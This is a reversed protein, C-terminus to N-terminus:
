RSKSAVWLASPIITLAGLLTWMSPVEAFLFYGATIAFLLEAYRFPALASADALSFGKLLFFLIGNAGCGLLFFLAWDYAMPAVWVPAVFFASLCATAVSGWFLMSVMSEQNVFRKNLIDLCAFLVSALLLSWAQVNFDGDPHLIILVGLFGGLTAWVRHWEMREKLFIKALVLTLLPITFNLTTALSLPVHGLGYCWLGIGGFLLVGRAMHLWIRKTSFFSWGKLFGIPLLVVASLVFRLFTVQIPHMGKGLYRALVDNFTSIMFAILCYGAAKLLLARKGLFQKMVMITM